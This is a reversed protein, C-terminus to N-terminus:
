NKEMKGSETVSLYSCNDTLAAAREHTYHAVSFILLDFM